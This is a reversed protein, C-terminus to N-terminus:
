LYGAVIQFITGIMIFLGILFIIINLIKQPSKYFPKKELKLYLMAPLLFGMGVASVGGVLEFLAGLDDVTEAIILGGAIIAVTFLAQVFTENLKGAYLTLVSYLAFKPMYCYYPVSIIVNLCLLLRAVNALIDNEGFNDLVNAQVETYFLFYGSYGLTVFSFYTMILTGVIVSGWRKRTPEHYQGFVSFSIDQCVFLFVMGGIASIQKEHGLIPFSDPPVTPLSGYRMIVRVFLIGTVGLISLISLFSNIAYNSINKFFALPLVAAGIFLLLYDKSFYITEIGTFSTLVRTLNSSIILLGGVLGGFNYLFMLFCILLYGAHGLGFMCLEPYSPQLYKFSLYHLTNLTYGIILALILFVLPTLWVGLEYIYFPLVVSGAALIDNWLNFITWWTNTTGETRYKISGIDVINEDPFTNEFNRNSNSKSSSETQSEEDKHDYDNEGGNSEPVAYEVVNNSSSM